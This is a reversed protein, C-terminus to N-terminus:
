MLGLLRELLFVKRMESAVRRREENRGASGGGATGMAFDIGGERLNEEHGAMGLAQWEEVRVVVVHWGQLSALLAQALRAEATLQLPPLMSTHLLQRQEQRAGRQSLRKQVAAAAAAAAATAKSAKKGKVHKSKPTRQKFRKGRLMAAETVLLVGVRLSREEAAKSVRRNASGSVQHDTQGQVQSGGQGLRVGSALVSGDLICGVDPLVMAALGAALLVQQQQQQQQLFQLANPPVTSAKAGGSTHVQVGRAGMSLLTQSVENAAAATAAVSRTDRSDRGLMSLWQQQAAQLVQSSGAQVPLSANASLAWLMHDFPGKKDGWALGNGGGEGAGSAGGARSRQLQAAAALLLLMPFASSARGSVSGGGVVLGSAGAKGEAGGLGSAPLSDTSGRLLAVSRQMAGNPSAHGSTQTAPETTLHPHSLLALTAPVASPHHALVLVLAANSLCLLSAGATKAELPERPSLRAQATGGAPSSAGSSGYQAGEGAAPWGASPRLVAMFHAGELEAAVMSAAAAVLPPPTRRGLVRTSALAIAIQTDPSLTSANHLLGRQHDNHSGNDTRKCGSHSNDNSQQHGRQHDKFSGNDNHQHDSYSTGNSQQHGRQHDKFSGNDNHGHHSYSDDTNHQLGLQHGDRASGPHRDQLTHQQQQSDHQEHQHSHLGHGRQMNQYSAGSEMPPESSVVALRGSANNPPNQPPPALQQAYQPLPSHPPHALQQAYQPVAALALASYLRPDWHRLSAVSLLMRAAVSPQLLPSPLQPGLLNRQLPAPPPTPLHALEQAISASPQTACRPHQDATYSAPQAAQIPSYPQHLQAEQQDSPPSSTSNTTARLLPFPPTPATTLQADATDQEEQWMLALETIRTMLAPSHHDVTAYSALLAAVQSPSMRGVLDWCWHALSGSAAKEWVVHNRWGLSGLAYMMSVAQSPSFNTMKNTGWRALEDVMLRLERQDPLSGRRVALGVLAGLIACLERPKFRHMRARVLRALRETMPELEHARRSAGAVKAVGAAAAVESGAGAGLLAYAQALGPMNMRGAQRSAQEVLARVALREVSGLPAAGGGDPVAGESSASSGSSSCRVPFRHLLLSLQGEALGEQARGSGSSSGSSNGGVIGGNGSGGFLSVNSASSRGIRSSSSSSSSGGVVIGDSSGFGNSGSSRSGTSSRMSSSDDRVSSSDKEAGSASGLAEIATALLLAAPTDLKRALRGQRATVEAALQEALVNASEVERAAAEDEEEKEEEREEVLDEDGNTTVRGAPGELDGVGVGDEEDLPLDGEGMDDLGLAEEVGEEEMWSGDGGQSRVGGSDGGFGGLSGMGNANARQNGEKHHAPLSVCNATTTLHSGQLHQTPSLRPTSICWALVALWHANTKNKDARYTRAALVAKLWARLLMQLQQLLEPLTKVGQDGAGLSRAGEWSGGSGSISPVGQGAEPGGHKGEKMGAFAGEDSEGGGVATMRANSQTSQSSHEFAQATSVAVCLRVAASALVGASRLTLPGVRERGFSPAEGVKKWAQTSRSKRGSHKSLAMLRAGGRAKLTGRLRRLGPQREDVYWEVGSGREGGAQTEAVGGANSRVVSGRHGGGTARQQRTPGLHTHNPMGSGGLPRGGQQQKAARLFRKMPPQVGWLMGKGGGAGAGLGGARRGQERRDGQQQLQQWAVIATLRATAAALLEAVFTRSCPHSTAALAAAIYALHQIPLHWLFGTHLAAQTAAEWAPASYPVIHSVQARGENMSAPRYRQALFLLLHVGEPSGGQEDRHEGSQEESRRSANGKESKRSSSGKDSKRNADGAQGRARPRSSRSPAFAPAKPRLPGVREDRSDVPPPAPPRHRDPAPLPSPPPPGDVGIKSSEPQQQDRISHQSPEAGPLIPAPPRDAKTNSSVPPQQRQQQQQLQQQARSGQAPRQGEMTAQSTAPVPKGEKTSSALPQQQHHHAMSSHVPDGRKLEQSLRQQPQSAHRPEAQQQQQQQQQQQGQEELQQPEHQEQQQHQRHEQQTSQPATPTLSISPGRDQTWRKGRKRQQWQQLVAQRRQALTEQTDVTAHQSPAAHPPPMARRRASEPLCCQCAQVRLHKISPPLASAHSAEQCSACGAPKATLLLM